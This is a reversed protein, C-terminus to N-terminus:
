AYVELSVHFPQSLPFSGACSMQIVAQLVTLSLWASGVTWECDNGDADLHPFKCLEGNRCKGQGFFACPPPNGDKWSGAGSSTRGQGYPRPVGSFSLKKGHGFPKVQM